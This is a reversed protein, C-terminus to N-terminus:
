IADWDCNECEWSVNYSNTGTLRYTTLTDGNRTWKRFFDEVEMQDEVSECFVCIQTSPSGLYLSIHSFNKTGNAKLSVLYTVLGNVYCTNELTTRNTM